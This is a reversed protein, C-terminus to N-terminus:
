DVMVVAASYAMVAGLEIEMMEVSLLESASVLSEAKGYVMADVRKAVMEDALSDVKLAAMVDASWEVWEDDKEDVWM